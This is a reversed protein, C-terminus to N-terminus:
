RAPQDSHLSPRAELRVYVWAKTGSELEIQTRRYRIGLREYRDLRRLEDSSVVFKVGETNTGPQATVNLRQKEYDPLIASVAPVQRGIVLWRVLSHQLTGYAFICHREQPAIPALGGPPSYGWPSLLIFWLWIGTIVTLAGAALSLKLLWRAM